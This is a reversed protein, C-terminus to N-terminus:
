SGCESLETSFGMDRFFGTPAYIGRIREDTQLMVEDGEFLDGTLSNREGGYIRAPVVDGEYDRVNTPGVNIGCPFNQRQGSMWMVFASDVEYCDDIVFEQRLRIMDRCNLWKSLANGEAFDTMARFTSQVYTATAKQGARRFDRFELAFIAHVRGQAVSLEFANRSRKPKPLAFSMAISRSRPGAHASSQTYQPNARFGSSTCLPDDRPSGPMSSPSGGCAVLLALGVLVLSGQM